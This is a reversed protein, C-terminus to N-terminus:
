RQSYKTRGGGLLGVIMGFGTAIVVLSTTSTTVNGLKILYASVAFFVIGVLSQKLIAGGEYDGYRVSSTIVSVTNIMWYYGAISALPMFNGTSLQPLAIFFLAYVSNRAIWILIRGGIPPKVPIISRKSEKEGGNTAIADNKTGTPMFMGAAQMVIPKLKEKLNDDIRLPVGERISTQYESLEEESTFRDTLCFSLVLEDESKPDARCSPCSLFAGLKEGGCKWCIARTM